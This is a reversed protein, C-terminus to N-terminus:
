RRSRELIAAVDRAIWAIPGGLVLGAAIYRPQSGLSDGAASVFAIGWAGAIWM